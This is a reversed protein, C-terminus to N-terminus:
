RRHAPGERRAPVAFPGSAIVAEPGKKHTSLPCPSHLGCSCARVTKQLILTPPEHIWRRARCYRASVDPRDTRAAIEDPKAFRLALGRCASPRGPRKGDAYSNKKMQAFSRSAIVWHRERLTADSGASAARSSSASTLSRGISGKRLPREFFHNLYGASFRPKSVGPVSSM